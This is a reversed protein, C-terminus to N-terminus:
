LNLNREVHVSMFKQNLHCAIKSPASLLACGCKNSIFEAVCERQCNEKNYVQYHTLNYEKDM